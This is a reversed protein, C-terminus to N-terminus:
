VAVAETEGPLQLKMLVFDFRVRCENISVRTGISAFRLSALM